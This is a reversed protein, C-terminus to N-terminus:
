KGKGSIVIRITHMMIKFDLLLSINEIYMLDYKMREIMEQVSSAYGFQIMGWSTLGPKVKLLYRYYPATKLIYDIYIRREPRPGVFSMNGILINWLQPLEDIRWKRMFKGWKTIRLDYDSSLSPGDQEAHDYMSRFKYIVFLKGKLGVRVQSYIINGPSSYKTIIAVLLLLPSLFLLNFISFGIDFLRKINKQWYPLLEIELDILTAGFVNNTKVSGSIIDIMSPAIKIHVEKEILANIINEAEQYQKKDVSLIVQDIKKKDIVEDIEDVTGLCNLYKSLGNKSDDKSTLYGVPKLGLYSFNKILEKYISVANSNNGIFLTNFYVRQKIIDRKVKELILARGIFIISFQILLYLSLIALNNNPFNIMWIILIFLSTNIITDTLENLRSKQYLSKQYSGLLLYWLLWLMPILFYDKVLENTQINDFSLFAIQNPLSIRRFLLWSILSFVYDSLAYIASNRLKKQM